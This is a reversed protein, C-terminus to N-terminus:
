APRTVGADSVTPRERWSKWWLIKLYRGEGCLTGGVSITAMRSALNHKEPFCRGTTKGLGLLVRRKESYMYTFLGLRRYKPDIESWGLFAENNSFAVSFPIENISGMAETTTAAWHIGAFESGVFACFMLAGKDLRERAGIVHVGLDFGRSLLDDLQESTLITECFLGPIQPTFEAPTPQTLPVLYVDFAVRAFLCGRLFRSGRKILAIFGERHLIHKALGYKQQLASKMHSHSRSLWCLPIVRLTEHSSCAARYLVEPKM